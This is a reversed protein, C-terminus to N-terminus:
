SSQRGEAFDGRPVRRVRAVARVLAPSVGFARAICAVGLGRRVQLRMVVFDDRDLPQAPLPSPTDHTLPRGCLPCSDTLHRVPEHNVGCENDSGVSIGLTEPTARPVRNAM